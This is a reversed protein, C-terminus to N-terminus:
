PLLLPAWGQAECEVRCAKFYAHKKLDKEVEAVLGSLEWPESQLNQFRRSSTVEKVIQNM